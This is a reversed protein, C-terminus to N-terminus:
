KGATLNGILQEACDCAAFAHVACGYLQSQMEKPLAAALSLDLALKLPSAICQPKAQAWQLIIRMLRVLVRTSLVPAQPQNRLMVALEVGANTLAQFEEPAVGAASGALRKRLMALELERPLYGCRIHMFRDITSLDQVQRDVYAQAGEVDAMPCNDTVIVRANPHRAVTEGTQPIYLDGGELLDNLAVWVEAPAVSFENIVLVYGHRWALVAPGDQWAFRGDEGRVVFSGLFETKDMKRRCTMSIVPANLRALFQMAGSTKGCGTPGSLCLPTATDEGEWWLRMQEFWLPEFVHDPDIRTRACCAPQKVGEFGLITLKSAFGFDAVAIAKTFNMM